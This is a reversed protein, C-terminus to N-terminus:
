EASGRAALAHKAARRDHELGVVGAHELGVVGVCGVFDPNVRFGSQGRSLISRHIFGRFASPACPHWRSLFVRHTGSVVGRCRSRERGAGPLARGAGSGAIAKENNREDKRDRRTNQWRRAYGGAWMALALRVTSPVAVAKQGSVLRGFDDLPFPHAVTGRGIPIAARAKVLPTPIATTEPRAPGRRGDSRMPIASLIRVLCAVAHVFSTLSIASNEGPDNYHDIVGGM